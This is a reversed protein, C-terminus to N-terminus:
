IVGDIIQIQRDCRKVTSLRHAIIILTKSGSVDYIEDMIRAETEDDLSSTAEDLVLVDPDNYLARAIGIRQKQGGSLQLGGDGVRTHIGEQTELFSWMKAKKLVEVIREEDYESGFTVNEAATGDFLYIDQPIYGIRSRWSRINSNDIVVDDVLLQGKMPRYIGIIIDVMTTKGSGSEGTFAIKEGRKIELSINKIVDNGKLYRFWINKCQISHEFVVPQQGENDVELQLEDYILHLSKQQFAVSNFYGLIRNIAPLMRYLALAYMSIVPIVVAASHYRWLIYCVVAILLSFGLNELINKPISGLTSSIISTRSVTETSTRFTQFIEEQNGKLKVFKFNRFTEIITRGLRINAQYRREGLKKSARILTFFVIFILLILIATLVLTIQWNVIIMFIYLMLITISESFIQLCNLLLGSLNNAEGAIMNSMVSPNKYVYVKYPLDLYTKFIRSAFYRFTGLSFKNMSYSYFINYVSRFLYFLIIGIGFAIIFKNKDTFNLLDYIYKYRGSDLIDPNSAASIFPMVVSVGATEVLSLIISMFFLVILYFKRKRELLQNLKWPISKLADKEAGTIRMNGGEM